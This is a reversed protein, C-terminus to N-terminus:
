YLQLLARMISLACEAKFAVFSFGRTGCLQILTSSHDEIIFSHPSADPLRGACGARTWAELTAYNTVPPNPADAPPHAPPTGHANLQRYPRVFAPRVRSSRRREDTVRHNQHSPTEDARIAYNPTWGGAPNATNPRCSPKKSPM